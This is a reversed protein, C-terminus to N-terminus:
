RCLEDFQREQSRKAKYGHTCTPLGLRKREKQREGIYLTIELIFVDHIHRKLACIERFVNMCRRKWCLRCSLPNILWIM